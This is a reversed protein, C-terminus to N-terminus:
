QPRRRNPAKEAVPGGGFHRSEAVDGYTQIEYEIGRGDKARFKKRPQRM